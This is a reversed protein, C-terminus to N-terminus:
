PLPVDQFEFPVRWAARDMEYYRFEAPPSTGPGPTYAYTFYFGGGNDGGSGSSGFRVPGGGADVVRVQHAQLQNARTHKLGPEMEGTLRGELAVAMRGDHEM